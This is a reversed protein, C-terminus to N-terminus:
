STWVLGEAGDSQETTIELTYDTAAALGSPPNTINITSTTGVQSLYCNPM